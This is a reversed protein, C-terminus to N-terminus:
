FPVCLLLTTVHAWLDERPLSCNSVCVPIGFQSTRCLLILARLQNSFWHTHCWPHLFSLSWGHGAPVHKSAGSAIGLFCVSAAPFESGTEMFMGTLIGAWASNQEPEEQGMTCIWLLAFATGDLFFTFNYPRSVAWVHCADLCPRPLWWQCEYLGVHLDFVLSTSQVTSPIAGCKGWGVDPM